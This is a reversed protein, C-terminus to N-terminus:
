PIQDVSSIIAVLFKDTMALLTRLSVDLRRQVESHSLAQESTVNYPLNSHALSILNDALAGEWPHGQRFGM